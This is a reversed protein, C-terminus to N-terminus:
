IPLGKKLEDDPEYHHHNGIDHGNYDSPIVLSATSLNAVCGFHGFLVKEILLM